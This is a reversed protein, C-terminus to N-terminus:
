RAWEPVDDDASNGQRKAARQANTKNAGASHKRWLGISKERHEELKPNRLLGDDCVVFKQSVVHWAARWEAATAGVIRQLVREDNPLGGLDWQADLLERYLGRELLSWGRTSSAFDRPYWPM